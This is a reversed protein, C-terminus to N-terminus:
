NEVLLTLIGRFSPVYEPIRTGYVTHDITSAIPLDAMGSQKSNGMREAFKLETNHSVREDNVVFAKPLKQKQLNHARKQVVM